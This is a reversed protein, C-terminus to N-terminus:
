WVHPLIRFRVRASYEAYGPLERVLRREEHLARLPLFLCGLAAPALGLLSGLALPLALQALMPGAYGPHRVYAYPGRDVVRHGRERLVQGIGVCNNTPGYAGEPFFVITRGDAM